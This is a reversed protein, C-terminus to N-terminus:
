AEGKIIVKKNVSVNIMLESKLFCDREATCLVCGNRTFM